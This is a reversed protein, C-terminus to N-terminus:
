FSWSIATLHLRLIGDDDGGGVGDGDDDDVPSFQLVGDPLIMLSPSVSFSSPMIQLQETPSLQIHHSAFGLSPGGASQEGKIVSGCPQTISSPLVICSPSSRSDGLPQM